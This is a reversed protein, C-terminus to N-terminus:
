FIFVFPEKNEYDSVYIQNISPIDVTGIITNNTIIRGLTDIYIM